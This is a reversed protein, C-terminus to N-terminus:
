PLFYFSLLIEEAQLVAIGSLFVHSCGGTSFKNPINEIFM